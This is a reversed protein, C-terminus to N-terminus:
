LGRLLDLRRRREPNQEAYPSAPNSGSDQLGPIQLMPPEALKKKEEEGGGSGGSGGSGGLSGMMDSVTKGEKTGLFENVKGMAQAKEANGMQLIQKLSTAKV